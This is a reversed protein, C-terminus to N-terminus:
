VERCPVRSHKAKAEVGEPRAAAAFVGAVAASEKVADMSPGCAVVTFAHFANALGSGSPASWGTTTTVPLSHSM